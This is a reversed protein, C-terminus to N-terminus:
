KVGRGTRKAKDKKEKEKEKEKKELSFSSRENLISSNLIVVAGVGVVVNLPTFLVRSHYGWV